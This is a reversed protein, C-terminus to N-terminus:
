SRSFPNHCSITVSRHRSERPRLHPRSSISPPPKKQFERRSIMSTRGTGPPRNGGAALGAHIQMGIALGGGVIDVAGEVVAYMQDGSDGQRFVVASAPLTEAQQDKDFLHIKM